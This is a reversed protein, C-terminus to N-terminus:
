WRAPSFQARDTVASLRQSPESAVIEASSACRDMLERFEKSGAETALVETIVSSVLRCAVAVVTGKEFGDARVTRDARRDTAM